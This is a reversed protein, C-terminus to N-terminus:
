KLREYDRFSLIGKEMLIKLLVQFKEETNMPTTPEPTSSLAYLDAFKDEEFPDEEEAPVAEEQDSQIVEPEECGYWREIASTIDSSAALAPRVRCGTAFQLADIVMLNTPDTMAILLYVTGYMEKRDVPIVNYERAKEVPVYDLVEREIKVKGLAVRPLNLQKALFGQLKDEAVYGLKVLSSGVRGGWHRQHSLASNLQFETIIGAEILM